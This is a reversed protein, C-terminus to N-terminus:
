MEETNLVSWCSCCSNPQLFMAVWVLNRRQLFKFRIFCYLILYQPVTFGLLQHTKYGRYNTEYKIDEIIFRM